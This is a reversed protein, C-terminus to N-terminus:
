AAQEASWNREYTMPSVYNLTSHLRKMNYFNIWDLVEDKAARATEFTRGHIRAVKLKGWLSETPANDWCNGKRSMSSEMGYATLTDQFINSCYQSGRDSHVILGKAPHRRFYAMRLADVVMDTRMHNQMSWGVIQRSFLDIFAVLYQWSQGVAIYTIDTTWVQNPRSVKFERNLLNPAVPLHHKSDTTTIWKRKHRAQIGHLQMLKRVREKGVRISRDQLEKHMRPWGYEQKVETHIAKIHVLLAANSLNGCRSLHPQRAQSYRKRYQHYGSPSVNLLACVVALSWHRNKAIFAYRM